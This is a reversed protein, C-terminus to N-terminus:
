RPRASGGAHAGEALALLAARRDKMIRRALALEDDAALCRRGDEGPAVLDDPLAIVVARDQNSM